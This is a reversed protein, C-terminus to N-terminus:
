YFSPRYRHFGIAYLCAWGGKDGRVALIFYFAVVLGRKYRAETGGGGGRWGERECAKFFPLM